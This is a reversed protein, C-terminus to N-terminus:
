EGARPGPLGASACRVGLWGAPPETVLPDPLGEILAGVLGPGYRVLFPYVNLVREQPAGEPFLNASVKRLQELQIESKQRLHQRIKKEIEATQALAQNRAAM